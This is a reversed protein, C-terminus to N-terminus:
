TKSLHRLDKYTLHIVESCIESLEQVSSLRASRPRNPRFDAEVLSILSFLDKFISTLPHQWKAEGTVQAM